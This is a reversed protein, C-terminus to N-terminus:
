DDKKRMKIVTLLLFSKILTDKYFPPPPFGKRFIQPCRLTLVKCLIRLNHLNIRIQHICQVKRFLNESTNPTKATGKRM